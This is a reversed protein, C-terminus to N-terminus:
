KKTKDRPATETPAASSAVKNKQRNRVMLIIGVIVLIFILGFFMLPIILRVGYFLIKGLIGGSQDKDGIIESLDDVSKASAINSSASEASGKYARVFYYFTQDKPANADVYMTVGKLTQGINTYGSSESSSRFIKYGEITSTSSVDWNLQIAGGRDGFVDSAVLNSPASISSLTSSAPPSGNGQSVGISSSTSSQSDAPTSEESEESPTNGGVDYGYTAFRFDAELHGTNDWVAFGRDYCDGNGYHWVAKKNPDADYVKIGYMGLPTYANPLDFTVWAPYNPITQTASSIVGTGERIIEVKVPIDTGIEPSLYLGVADIGGKVPVFVQIPEHSMWVYQAPTTGYQCTQDIDALALVKQPKSNIIPWLFVSILFLVTSCKFIGNM